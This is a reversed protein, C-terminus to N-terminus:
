FHMGFGPAKRRISNRNYDVWPRKWFGSSKHPACKRAYMCVNSHNHELLLCTEHMIYATYQAPNIAAGHYCQKLAVGFGYGNDASTIVVRFYIETSLPVHCSSGCSKLAVGPTYIVTFSWRVIWSIWYPNELITESQSTGKKSVHDFTLGPM